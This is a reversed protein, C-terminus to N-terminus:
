SRICIGFIKVRKAQIVPKCNIIRRFSGFDQMLLSSFRTQSLQKLLCNLICKQVSSSQLTTHLIQKESPEGDAIIVVYQKEGIQQEFHNFYLLPLLTQFDIFPDVKGSAPLSNLLKAKSLLGAHFKVNHNIM